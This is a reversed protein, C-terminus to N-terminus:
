ALPANLQCKLTPIREVNSKLSVRVIRVSTGVRPLRGFTNPAPSHFQSAGSHVTRNDVPTKVSHFWCIVAGTSQIISAFITASIIRAFSRLNEATRIECSPLRHEILKDTRLFYTSAARQWCHESGFLYQM